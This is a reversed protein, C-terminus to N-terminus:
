RGTSGGVVYPGPGFPRRVDVDAAGEGGVARSPPPVTHFVRVGNLGSKMLKRLEAEIVGM